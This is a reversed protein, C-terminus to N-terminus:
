CRSSRAHWEARRLLVLARTIDRLPLFQMEQPSTYIQELEAISPKESDSPELPVPQFAPADVPAAHDLVDPQNASPAPAPVLGVSNSDVQVGAPSSDPESAVSDLETAAAAAPGVVASGVAPLLIVPTVALDQSSLSLCLTFLLAAVLPAVGQVLRAHSVEESDEIRRLVNRAKASTLGAQSLGCAVLHALRFEVQRHRSISSPSWGEVGPPSACSRSEVEMELWKDRQHREEAEELRGM